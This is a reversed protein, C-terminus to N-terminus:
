RCREKTSRYQTYRTNVTYVQYSSYIGPIYQIYGSHVTYVRYTSYIGSMARRRRRETMMDQTTTTKEEATMETPLTIDLEIQTPPPAVLKDM